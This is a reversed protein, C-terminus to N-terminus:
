PQETPYTRSDVESSSLGEQIKLSSEFCYLLLLATSHLSFSALCPKAQGQSVSSKKLGKNQPGPKPFGTAIIGATVQTKDLNCWHCRCNLTPHNGPQSACCPSNLICFQVYAAQHCMCSQIKRNQLYQKLASISRTHNPSSCLVPCFWNCLQSQHRLHWSYYGNSCPFDLKGM